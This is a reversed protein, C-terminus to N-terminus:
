LKNGNKEGENEEKMKELLEKVTLKKHEIDLLDQIERIMKKSEKYGM